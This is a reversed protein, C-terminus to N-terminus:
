TLTGSCTAKNQCSPNNWAVASLFLRVVWVLSSNSVGATGYVPTLCVGLAKVKKETWQFCVLVVSLPFLLLHSQGLLRFTRPWEWDAFKFPFQLLDPFPSFNM